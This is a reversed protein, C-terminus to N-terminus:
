KEEGKQIRTERKERNDKSKDINKIRLKIEEGKEEIRESTM